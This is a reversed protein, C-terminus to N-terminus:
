HSGDDNVEKPYKKERMERILPYIWSRFHHFLTKLSVTFEGKLWNEGLFNITVAIKRDSERTQIASMWGYFIGNMMPDPLSLTGEVKKIKWGTLFSFFGKFYRWRIPLRSPPQIKKKKMPLLIPIGLIKIVMKGYQWGSSVFGNWKLLVLRRQTDWCLSIPIM